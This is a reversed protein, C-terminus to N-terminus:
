TTVTTVLTGLDWQNEWLGADLEGKGTGTGFTDGYTITFFSTVYGRFRQYVGCLFGCCIKM